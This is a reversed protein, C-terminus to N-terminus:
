FARREQEAQIRRLMQELERLSLQMAQQVQAKVEGGAAGGVTISPSFHITMGGAAGAAAQVRPLAQVADEVGALAQGGTAVAGALAAGALKGSASKVAGLSKTIGIAAGDSINGGFGMFVKSPSAIGLTDAFWGKINRGFNLVADKAATLKAKFGQVLGDILMGGFDTFNKPLDIGFWSLVGAFAKYFLGLPSWNLILKGVGTIGESFANRITQWVPAVFHVIAGMVGFFISKIGNWASSMLSTIGHLARSFISSVGGWLRSFFGKIPEWYRYILYAVGAIATIVLGVPNMLLARGLFLIAQGALRLGSVLV